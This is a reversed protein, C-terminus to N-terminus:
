GVSADAAVAAEVRDRGAQKAAYLARVAARLLRIRLHLTMGFM